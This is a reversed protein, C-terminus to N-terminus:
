EYRLAQIPPIKSARRAPVYVALMTFLLLSPVVLAPLAATIVYAVIEVSGAYFVLSNMLREVAFDMVLGIATGVGVLALDKGMM